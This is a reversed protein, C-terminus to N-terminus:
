RRIRKKGKSPSYEQAGASRKPPRGVGRKKVPESRHGAKVNAAPSVDSRSGKGEGQKATPDRSSVKSGKADGPGHRGPQLTRANKKAVPASSTGTAGRSNSLFSTSQMVTKCALERLEVAAMHELTAKPYFAIVNNVFLLMDRLLEKTSSIAGSKIKSHLIRFDMHRRIMKKYRARKRQTDVQRQLMLCDGQTAITKLIEALNPREREIVSVGCEVKPTKLSNKTVSSEVNPTKLSKVGSQVNPTKLGRKM